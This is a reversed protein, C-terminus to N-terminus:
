DEVLDDPFMEAYKKIWEVAAEEGSLDRGERVSIEKKYHEIHCVQEVMRARFASDIELFEVGVNYYGNAKECWVVRGTAEFVPKVLPIKIKIITEEPLDVKSKFSLGGIGINNLYEKSHTVIDELYVEIPIDSPHRIFRRMDDKITKTM